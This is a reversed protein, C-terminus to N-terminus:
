KGEGEQVIKDFLNQMLQREVSDLSVKRFDRIICACFLGISAYGAFWLLLASFGLFLGVEADALLFALMSTIGTLFLTASLAPPFIRSVEVIERVTRMGHTHSIAQMHEMYEELTM